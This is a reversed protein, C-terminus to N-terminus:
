ARYRGRGNPSTSAAAKQLLSGDQWNDGPHRLAAVMYGDRALAEALSSHGLETGGIGHSLVILGKFKDEPPAQIAAQVTFPGMATTRETAKTPYYLSWRPHPARADEAGHRGAHRRADHTDARHRRRLLQQGLEAHRDAVEVRDLEVLRKGGLRQGHQALQAQAVVGLLTFGFPPAMASPWGSPAEPPRRIIVASFWSSAVPPLRASAVMHMPTPWPM